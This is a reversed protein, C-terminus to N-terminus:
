KARAAFQYKLLYFFTTQAHMHLPKCHGFGAKTNELKDRHPVVERSSSHLPIGKSKTNSPKKKSEGERNGCRM